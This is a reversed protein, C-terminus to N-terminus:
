HFSQSYDVGVDLEYKWDDFVRKEISIGTGEQVCYFANGVNVFLQKRAVFWHM